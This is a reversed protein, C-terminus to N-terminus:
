HLVASGTRKQKRHLISRGARHQRQQPPGTRKQKPLTGKGQHIHRLKQVQTKISARYKTMRCRLAQSLIGTKNSILDLSRVRSAKVQKSASLSTEQIWGYAHAARTQVKARTDVVRHAIGHASALATEKFRRIGGIAQAQVVSLSARYKEANQYADALISQYAARGDVVVLATTKEWAPAIWHNIRARARAIGKPVMALTGILAVSARHITQKVVYVGHHLQQGSWQATAVSSQFLEAPVLRKFRDIAPVAATSVNDSRSAHHITITSTETSLRKETLTITRVAGIPRSEIVVEVIEASASRSTRVGEPVVRVTGSPHDRVSSPTTSLM